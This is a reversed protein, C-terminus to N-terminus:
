AATRGEQSSRLPCVNKHAEHDAILALVKRHGVANRDRGCLCKSTATPTAGHPARIHLWAVPFRKDGHPPTTSDQEPPLASLVGQRATEEQGCEPVPRAASDAPDPRDATDPLSKLGARAPTTTM